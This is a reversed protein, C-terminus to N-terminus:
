RYLTPEIVLQVIPTDVRVPTLATAGLDAPRAGPGDFLCHGNPNIM